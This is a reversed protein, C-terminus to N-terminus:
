PLILVHHFDLDFVAFLEVPGDDAAFAAPLHPAENAPVSQVHAPLTEALDGTVHAEPLIGLSTSFM